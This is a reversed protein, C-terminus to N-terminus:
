KKYLLGDSAQYYGSPIDTPAIATPTKTDGTGPTGNGLGVMLGQIAERSSSVRNNIDPTVVNTYFSNITDYNFGTSLLKSTETRASDSVASGSTQGSIVKAYETMSLVVQSVFNNVDANGTSQIAGGKIWADIIPAGTEYVSADAKKSLSLLVDFNKTAAKENVSLLGFNKLNQDLAASNAKYAARYSPMTIGLSRLISDAKTTIAKNTNIAVTKTGRATTPMKGDALYQTAADYLAGMTISTGPVTTGANEDVANDPTNVFSKVYSSSTTLGVTASSKTGPDGVSGSTIYSKASPTLSGDKNTPLPTQSGDLNVKVIADGVKNGYSDYRAVKVIKTNSQDIKQQNQTRVAAKDAETQAFDSQKNTQTTDYERKKETLALSKDYDNRNQRDSALLQQYTKGLTSQQGVLQQRQALLPAKEQQILGMLQAENVIGGSKAVQDKKTQLEAALATDIDAIQKQIAQYSTLTSTLAPDSKYGSSQSSDSPTYVGQKALAAANEPSIQEGGGASPTSAASISGGTSQTRDTPTQSAATGINGQQANNVTVPANTGNLHSLLAKNQDATGQYNSIGYKTALQARNSMSADAGTFRLYDSISNDKNLAGYTKGVNSIDQLSSNKYTNYEYPTSPRNLQKTFVDDLQNQTIM